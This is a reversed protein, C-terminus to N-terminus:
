APLNREDIIRVKEDNLMLEKLREKDTTWQKGDFWELGYFDAKYLCSKEYAPMLYCYELNNAKCFEIEAIQAVKGLSLKPQSYDTIFQLSLMNKGIVRYITCGVTQGEYEYFLVGKQKYNNTILKSIDYPNEFQKVECYKDFLHKIIHYRNFLSQANFVRIKPRLRKATENPKFNDVVIRTSRGAFWENGYGSAEDPLLGKQLAIEEEEPTPLFKIPNYIFDEHTIHGFGNQTDFIFDM